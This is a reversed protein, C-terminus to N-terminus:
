NSISERLLDAWFDPDTQRLRAEDDQWTAPWDYEKLFNVTPDLDTKDVNPPLTYAGTILAELRSGSGFIHVYMQWEFM